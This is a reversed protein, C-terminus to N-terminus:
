GFVNFGDPLAARGGLARIVQVSRGTHQAAATMVQLSLRFAAAPVDPDLRCADAVDVGHVVLEVTRTHLYTAFPHTGFRSVFVAGRPADTVLAVVRAVLRALADAPSAGLDAGARRGRAAVQVHLEPNDHTGTFYEGAADVADASGGAMARQDAEDGADDRLYEEVTVLARSAHGVLERVNWEGLGPDDWQGPEIRAVLLTFWQAAVVFVAIADDRQRQRAGDDSGQPGTGRQESGAVANM